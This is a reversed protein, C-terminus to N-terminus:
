HSTLYGTVKEGNEMLMSVNPGVIVALSKEM